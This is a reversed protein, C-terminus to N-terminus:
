VKSSGTIAKASSPAERWRTTEASEAVAALDIDLGPRLDEAIDKVQHRLFDASFHKRQDPLLRLGLSLFGTKIRALSRGSGRCQYAMM